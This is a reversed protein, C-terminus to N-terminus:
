PQTKTERQPKNTTKNENRNKSMAFAIHEAVANLGLEEITYGL